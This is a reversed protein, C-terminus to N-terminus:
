QRVTESATQKIRANVARSAGVSHRRGSLLIDNGERDIRVDLVAQALQLFGEVNDTKIEISFKRDAISPDAIVLKTENYRNFERVADALRANRFVLMGRRWALEDALEGPTKRTVSVSSATALADDGPTLMASQAGESSLTARGNLLAVEMRGAGRRVVFETGLDSVRHTGAIVAFPNAANHAVHFWAEGRELWVTREHNTMRYRVITDTNLEIQTHDAFNLLARGGVDTSYTRDPPPQLYQRAAFGLGAILAFSAAIALFSTRFRARPVAIGRRLRPPRLEIAREVRAVSAELRLFTVRHSTAEALWADLEAQDISNWRLLRRRQLFDAARAEVEDRPESSLKDERGTM